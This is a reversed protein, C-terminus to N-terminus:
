DAQQEREYQIVIRNVSIWDLAEQEVAQFTVDWTGDTREATETILGTCLFTEPSDPLPLRCQLGGGPRMPASSAVQFRRNGITKVARGEPFAVSVLGQVRRRDLIVTDTKVMYECYVRNAGERKGLYLAQDAAEILTEASDVDGRYEAIGGTATICIGDPPASPVHVVTKEFARRIRDAVVFAGELMTSPMLVLFEDGGYRGVVDSRRTHAKLLVAFERLVADGALHGYEDNCQKFKNLDFLIITGGRRFRRDKLLEWNVQERIYGTNYVGTLGDRIASHALKEYDLVDIIKAQNIYEGTTHLLLYDLLAVTINVPRRLQGSLAGMHQWIAKWLAAAEFPQVQINALIALLEAYTDLGYKEALESIADALSETDTKEEIVHLLDEHLVMHDHDM